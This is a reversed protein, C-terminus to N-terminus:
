ERPMSAHFLWQEYSCRIIAQQYLDMRLPTHSTPHGDCRADSREQMDGSRRVSVRTHAHTHPDTNRMLICISQQETVRDGQRQTNLTQPTMYICNKCGFCRNMKDNSATLNINVNHERSNNIQALLTHAERGNYICLHPFHSRM